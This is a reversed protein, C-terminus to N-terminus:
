GTAPHRPRSSEPVSNSAFPTCTARSSSRATAPPREGWLEDVLRSISVLENAHLLLVGLLVRQKAAGLRVTHAGNRVELPGLILFEM